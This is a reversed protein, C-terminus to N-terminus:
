PRPSIRIGYSFIKTSGDYATSLGTTAILLFTIRSSASKENGEVIERYGGTHTGMDAGGCSCIGYQMRCKNLPGM